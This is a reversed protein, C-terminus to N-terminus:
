KRKDEISKLLEEWDKVFSDAGQQQLEEALKKVRIGEKEFEEFKEKIKGPDSNLLSEIEGHDAFANLTNEPITNVSFPVALSKVYLIDSANPDKTSTSAWLLRQPSGGFNMIKQFADSLLMEKYVNYAEQMVAIGLQNKLPDPVKEAVAKDWRSVFISAVSRVDASKGEAIRREIGRAWAEAATKYQSASFLLTVNVSIGEYIAQEIAPIGESTGPIKILVNPRNVKKFIKRAAELTNQTDFALHPSVEISVFGDIHNTREYVPKFIDAARQIDEIALEFFLDESSIGDKGKEKISEDYNTTGSIAHDFISPNSTLGTVSFEQVYKSLIGEDLMHRTINDVWISQGLDSLKKTNANM